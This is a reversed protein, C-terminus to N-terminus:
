GHILPWFARYMALFALQALQGVAYLSQRTQGGGRRAMIVSPVYATIFVSIGVIIGTLYNGDRSLYVSTIAMPFLTHVLLRGPTLSRCLAVTQTDAYKATRGVTGALLIAWRGWIPALVLSRYIPAPYVHRFPYRWDDPPPWWGSFPPISAILVWSSLVTLALALTGVPSLPESTEEPPRWPRVSTLLNVTRALGLALFPGTFCCEVVVIVLPPIVRLNAIEGYLRWTGKFLGAWVLGVVLGVPVFWMDARAFTVAGSVTDRRGLPSLFRM